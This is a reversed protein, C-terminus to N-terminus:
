VESDLEGGYDSHDNGANYRTIRKRHPLGRYFKQFESFLEVKQIAEAIWIYQIQELSCSTSSSVRPSSIDYPSPAEKAKALWGKLSAAM